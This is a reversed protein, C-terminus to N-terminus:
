GHRSAGTEQSQAEVQALLDAVEKDTLGDVLQMVEDIGVGNGTPESTSGLAPQRSGRDRDISESLQAVTPAEFLRQVPLDIAFMERLRALVQIALLSHGGLEFFRDHVGVPAIGLFHEWAGAVKRETETRPAAYMTGLDPRPHATGAGSGAAAPRSHEPATANVEGSGLNVWKALRPILPSAAVVAHRLEAALIRQFADQGKAPTVVDLARSNAFDWADWGISIWTSHGAQNNRAAEADLFANAAAYAGLNLGGLVASISSMLVWLAPPDDKLAEQLHLIGRAKPGFQPEATAREIAAVPVFASKQLNAAGHIVAHPTGWSRRIKAVLAAVQAADTIDAEALMVEAGLRELARIREIQARVGDGPKTAALRADWKSRAPFRSRGTLVLKAKVTRAIVDALELGINGLGGTILYVGDRLLPSAIQAPDLRMPEYVQTWRRANRYAISAETGDRELDDILTQPIGTQGLAVDITRCRLHPYEQAVARLAAAAMAADAHLAEEGTVAYLRDTVLGIRLPRTSGSRALAQCLHVISYFGRRQAADFGVAAPEDASPKAIGDMAFLHLIRDPMRDRERLAALLEEYDAREDPRLRFGDATEQFADGVLVATVDAGKARLLEVVTAGVGGAAGLVLWRGSTGGDATARLATRWSPVYFWDAVDTAQPPSSPQPSVPVPMPTGDLGIPAFATAPRLATADASASAVLDDELPGIWYRKREFPYTPLAVIARKEAKRMGRWNIKVGGLWLRATSHMLVLDDPAEEQVARLSPIMLQSSARSGQQQALAQLTHGPGIEILALDPFAMIERLNDAFRVTNRMHAAWYEPSTTLEPTIWQGTLNSLYPVQPPSLKVRTLRETFQVLVPDMMSSHFAHSTHLRTCPLSQEALTREIVEMAEHPGALVSLAPANVAALSVDPGLLSHVGSEPLPVALMTGSPMSGMLRGRMAVVALADRLTMVGALCAAVYEGISHGIMADPKLGREMWLQALAYEVTFLAPQTMETRKLRAAAGDRDARPYLVDRLDLGLEGQLIACCEDVVDRFTKETRYLGLGMDVYQTGQGSFMFVVARETTDTHGSLMLAPDRARLAAETTARDDVPIILARRHPFTKRGVQLTHAIDALDASPTRAIFDALNETAHDLAATTRASLVLLHQAATSPLTDPPPAEELVVHANTGGVGFSSVGARRPHGQVPWDMTSSAVFFPSSPFDIQPNPTEYHLSQPVQGERVALIGKILGSVGAASSLHGVNSKLSGIACYSKRETGDRFARTLAAVEIPDGLATATGHTEIYGITGPDIGAMRHAMRIAEAQGDASPATYGVKAAGDNNIAFGKIVTDIRDGDRLADSLRKLVVVGVGNGVVTGMAAADFARCHGDPSVIGGPQYWYGKRQPVSIAVGGALAMDCYGHALSQCATVVAVLSTSCSTQINLSPGRLNLKYSVQTALYDKENGIAMMGGYGFASVDISSYIQYLYSSQDSGAFVGIMGPFRDPDCGANELAEWAVELFIRQQPDLTEADRPSYGFFGADFQDIAGIACGRPVYGPYDTESPNLGAAALEAPSFTQISEVGDLLNRWLQDVNEAGPFRGQMGIVALPETAPQMAKAMTTM